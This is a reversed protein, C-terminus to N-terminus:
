STIKTKECGLLVGSNVHQWKKKKLEDAPPDDLNNGILLLWTASVIVSLNM